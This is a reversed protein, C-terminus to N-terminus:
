QYIWDGLIQDGYPLFRKRTINTGYERFTMEPDLSPNTLTLFSTNGWQANQDIRLWRRQSASIPVRATQQLKDGDRYVKHEKLDIRSNFDGMLVNFRANQYPRPPKKYHTVIYQVETPRVKDPKAGNPCFWYNISVSLRVNASRAGIIVDFYVYGWETTWNSAQLRYHGDCGKWETKPNSIDFDAGGEGGDSSPPDYTVSTGDPISNNWDLYNPPKWGYKQEWEQWPITDYPSCPRAGGLFPRISKGTLFAADAPTAENLYPFWVGRDEYCLQGVGWDPSYAVSDPLPSINASDPSSSPTTIKPEPIPKEPYSYYLIDAAFLPKGDFQTCDGTSPFARIVRDKFAAEETYWYTRKTYTLTDLVGVCYNTFQKLDTVPTPTPTPTPTSSAGYVPNTSGNLAQCGIPPMAAFMKGTFYSDSDPGEYEAASYIKAPDTPSALCYYGGPTLQEAHAPAAVIAGMGLLLAISSLLATLRTSM